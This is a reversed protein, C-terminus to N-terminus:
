ISLYKMLTDYRDRLDDYMKEDETYTAKIIYNYRNFTQLLSQIEVTNVKIIVDIKTSDNLANIFLNMIKMDQSEVIGAIESLVYDNQNLEIVIIAGPNEVSLMNALYPLVRSITICGAYKEQESVVPLVTLGSAVMSKVVDFIHQHEYVFDHTLAIKQKSLPMDPDSMSYVDSERISGALENGEVVPLDSVRNEDLHYLVDAGTENIKVPEPSTSMFTQAIM